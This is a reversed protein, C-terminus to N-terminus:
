VKWVFALIASTGAGSTNRFAGLDRSVSCTHSVAFCRWQVENIQFWCWSEWRNRSPRKWCGRVCVRARACSCSTLQGSRTSWLCSPTFSRDMSVVRTEGETTITVLQSTDRAVRVFVVANAAPPCATREKFTKSSSSPLPADERRQLLRAPAVTGCGKYGTIKLRSGPKRLVLEAETESGLPFPSPKRLFFEM